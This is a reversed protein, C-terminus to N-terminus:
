KEDVDVVADVSHLLLAGGYAGGGDVNLSWGDVDRWRDGAVNGDISLLAGDSGGKARHLM